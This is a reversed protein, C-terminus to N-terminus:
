KLECPGTDRISVLHVNDKGYKNVTALIVNDLEDKPVLAIVSGAFGGGNIKVGAKEHSAEAILNCAELPSGEISDVYMNRLSNISSFRSRNILDVLTLVDNNDIAVKAQEVNTNEQYFHIAREFASQGCKEILIEKNKLVLEYDVDRLYSKNFYNAIAFMEEPIAAYLHSLSAHSGGSNVILFQYDDLRMKLPIVKPNKINKFDIYTLGGFGVGIQDLLGCMKGYYNREAYQGAKCLTMLPITGDNFLLNFIQAIILEYAASSSVGAGSPIASKLYADFGGYKYKKSLYFAIGRILSFSKGIERKRKYLKKLNIKAFSFGESYINVICDDRKRVAAYISLDCTAAICLGHNHDTHNGLVEFRGGCSLYKSPEIQFIKIFQKKLYDKM